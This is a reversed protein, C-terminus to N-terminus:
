LRRGRELVSKTLIKDVGEEEKQLNIVKHIQVGDSTIKLHRTGWQYIFGGDVKDLAKPAKLESNTIVDFVNCFQKRLMDDRENKLQKCLKSVTSNVVPGIADIAVTLSNIQEFKNM